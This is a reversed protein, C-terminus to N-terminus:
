PQHEGRIREPLGARKEIKHLLTKAATIGISHINYDKVQYGSQDARYADDPQIGAQSHKTAIHYLVDDPTNQNSAINLHIEHIKRDDEPLRMPNKQLESTDEYAKKLLKDNNTHKILHKILPSVSWHLEGPNEGKIRDYAIQHIKHDATTTALRMIEDTKTTPDKIRREIMTPTLTINNRKLSRHFEAVEEPSVKPQISGDESGLYHKVVPHTPDIESIYKGTTRDTFGRSMVVPKTVSLLYDHISNRSDHIATIPGHDEDSYQLSRTLEPHKQIHSIIDHVKIAGTKVNSQFLQRNSPSETRDPSQFIVAHQHQLAPINRTQPFKNVFEHYDISDDNEDMFSHDTHRSRDNPADVWEEEDGGAPVYDAGRNKGFHFMYRRYNSKDVGSDRSLHRNFKGKKDTFLILPSDKNYSDFMNHNRGSVCWRTGAGLSCSADQNKVHHVAIDDDEYLLSSGAARLAREQEGKSVRFRYPEVVKELHKLSNIKNIDRHEEPLQNKVAHFIQLAETARGLDELQLPHVQSHMESHQKDYIDQQQHAIEHAKQLLNPDATAPYSHVTQQAPENSKSYWHLMRDSYEKTSTPDAEVIKNFVESPEHYGGNDWRTHLTPVEHIKPKKGSVIEWPELQSKFKKTGLYKKQLETIRDEVLYFQSEHIKRYIM